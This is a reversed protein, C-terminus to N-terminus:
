WGSLLAMNTRKAGMQVTPIPVESRGDIPCCKESNAVRSGYYSYTSKLIFSRHSFSSVLKQSVSVDKYTKALLKDRM